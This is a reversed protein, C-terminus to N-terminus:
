DRTALYEFAPLLRRVSLENSFLLFADRWMIKAMVKALSFALALIASLAYCGKVIQYL